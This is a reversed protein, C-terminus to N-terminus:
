AVEGPTTKGQQQKRRARSKAMFEAVAAENKAQSAAQQEPTLAQPRHKPRQRELNAFFAAKKAAERATAVQPEQQWRTVAERQRALQELTTEGIPQFPLATNETAIDDPVHEGQGPLPEVM